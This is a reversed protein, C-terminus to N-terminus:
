GEGGVMRRRGKAGRLEEMQASHRAWAAQVQTFERQLNEILLGREAAESQIAQENATVRTNLLTWDAQNIQAAM